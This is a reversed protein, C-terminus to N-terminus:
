HTIDVQTWGDNTKEWIMERYLKVCGVQLLKLSLQRLLIQLAAPSGASFLPQIQICQTFRDSLTFCGCIFLHPLTEESWPPPFGVIDWAQSVTSLVCDYQELGYYSALLAEACGPEFLQTSPTARLWQSSMMRDSLMKTRWQLCQALLSSNKNVSPVCAATGHHRM